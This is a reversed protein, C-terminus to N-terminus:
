AFKEKSKPNIEAINRRKKDSQMTTSGKVVAVLQWYLKFRIGFMISSFKFIYM